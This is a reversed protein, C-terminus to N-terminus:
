QIGKALGRYEGERRGSGWVLAHRSEARLTGNLIKIYANGTPKGPRSSDIRVGNQNVWLDMM